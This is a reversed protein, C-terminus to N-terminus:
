PMLTRVLFIVQLPGPPLVTEQATAQGEEGAEQAEPPAQTQGYNHAIDQAGTRSRSNQVSNSLHQQNQIIETHAQGVSQRIYVGNSTLAGDGALQEPADPIPEGVAVNDPAPAPDTPVGDPDSSSEQTATVAPADGPTARGPAAQAVLDFGQGVQNLLPYVTDGVNGDRVVDRAVYNVTVNSVDKFENMQALARAMTAEDAEVYIMVQEGEEFGITAPDIPVGYAESASHIGNMALLVQLQNTTNEMATVDVCVLEVVVSQGAIEGVEGPTLPISPNSRSAIFNELATGATAPLPVDPSVDADAVGRPALAPGFDEAAMPPPFSQDSATEQPMEADPLATPGIPGGFASVEHTDPLIGTGADDQSVNGPGGQQNQILFGVAVLIGMAAAFSVFRSLWRKVGDGAPRPATAGTSTSKLQGNPGAADAQPPRRYVESAEQEVRQMLAAQFGQPVSPMPIARVLTGIQRLDELEQRAEPSSEIWDEIKKREEDALEGDLFASLLEDTIPFDPNM